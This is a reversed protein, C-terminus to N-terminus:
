TLLNASAWAHGSCEWDDSVAWRPRSDLRGDPTEKLVKTGLADQETIYMGVATALNSPQTRGHELAQCQTLFLFQAELGPPPGSVPAIAWDEGCARQM